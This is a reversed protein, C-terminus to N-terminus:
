VVDNESKDDEELSGEDQSRGDTSADDNTDEGTDEELHLVDRWNIEGLVEEHPANSLQLV